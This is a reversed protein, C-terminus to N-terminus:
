GLSATLRVMALTDLECYALLQRRLAEKRAPPAVKEVAEMYAVQAALGDQVGELDGYSLEPLRAPLVAKISYSGRMDRHYYHRRVAPLLDVIRAQLGVLRGALDPFREALAAIVGREFGASYAIIAGHDGLTALLAEACARSPDAGSLDLFARHDLAGDEQQIHCSFQFPTNKFPGTGLWRPVAFSITEFDLFYRPWGWEAVEAAFAANDHFELGSRTVDHVRKLPGDALHGEPVDRLDTFGLDLLKRGAKKGAQGPLSM